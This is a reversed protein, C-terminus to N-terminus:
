EIILIARRIYMSSSNSVLTKQQIISKLAALSHNRVQHFYANRQTFDRKNEALDLIVAFWNQEKVHKNVSRLIM